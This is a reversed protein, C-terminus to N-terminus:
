WSRLGLEGMVDDRCRSDEDLEVVSISGSRRREATCAWRVWGGVEKLGVEVGAVAALIGVEVEVEELM